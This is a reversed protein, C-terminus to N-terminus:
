RLRFATQVNTAHPQLALPWTSMWDSYSCAVFRVEDGAVLHAFQEIEM